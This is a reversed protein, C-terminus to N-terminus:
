KREPRVGKHAVFAQYQARATNLNIGCRVLQSVADKRSSYKAVALYNWVFDVPNSVLSKAPAQGALGTYTVGYPPKPVISSPDVSLLGSAVAALVKTEAEAYDMSALAGTADVGQPMKDTNDNAEPQQIFWRGEANQAAIANDIGARKAGRLATAKSGYTQM